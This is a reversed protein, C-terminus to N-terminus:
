HPNFDKTRKSDYYITRCNQRTRTHVTQLCDAGREGKKIETITDLPFNDSLWQEIGLDKVEGQLQM